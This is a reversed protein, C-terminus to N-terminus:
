SYIAPNFYDRLHAIKGDRLRFIQVLSWMEIKGDSELATDIEAIFVDPDATRHLVYGSKELNVTRGGSDARRHHEALGERLEEHGEMRGPPDHDPPFLPVEYVGDPTFLESQAGSDRKIGLWIYREFIEQPTTV